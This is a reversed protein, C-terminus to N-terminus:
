HYRVRLLRPNPGASVILLNDYETEAITPADPIGLGKVIEPVTNSHGVVLVTEKSSKLKEVLAATERAPVTTVPIGLAKSLPAATQQTRKFETVYIAGVGADKLM